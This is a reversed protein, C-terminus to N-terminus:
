ILEDLLLEALDKTEKIAQSGKACAELKVASSVLRNCRQKTTGTILSERKSRRVRRVDLVIERLFPVTGLGGFPGGLLSSFVRWCLSLRPLSGLRYSGLNGSRSRPGVM